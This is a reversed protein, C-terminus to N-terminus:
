QGNCDIRYVHEIHRPKYKKILRALAPRDTHFRISTLGKSQAAHLIHDTVDLLGEGGFCVIVLEGDEIRTVCHASGENIEWLESVGQRIESEIIERDIPEGLSKGLGAAARKTM